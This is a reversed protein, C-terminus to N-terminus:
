YNNELIYNVSKDIDGNNIILAEKNLIINTFGMLKLQELENMFSFNNSQYLNYGLPYSVVEEGEEESIDYNGISESNEYLTIPSPNVSQNNNNPVTPLISPIPNIPPTSNDLLNNIISAFLNNVTNNNISNIIPQHNNLLILYDDINDFNQLIERNYILISDKIIHKKNIYNILEAKTKYLNINVEEIILKDNQFIDNINVIYVSINKVSYM